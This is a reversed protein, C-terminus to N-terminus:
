PRHSSFNLSLHEGTYTAFGAAVLLWCSGHNNKEDREQYGRQSTTMWNLYEAFWTRVDQAEGGSLANRRELM